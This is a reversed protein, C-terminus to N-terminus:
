ALHIVDYGQEAKREDPSQILDCSFFQVDECSSCCAVLLHGVICASSVHGHSETLKVAPFETVADNGSKILESISFIFCKTVKMIVVYESKQAIAGVHIHIDIFSIDKDACVHKLLKFDILDFVRIDLKGNVFLTLGVLKDSFAVYEQQEIVISGWQQPLDELHFCGESAETWEMQRTCKELIKVALSYEQENLVVFSDPRGEVPLFYQAEIDDFEYECRERSDFVYWGEGPAASRKKIIWNNHQTLVFNRVNQPGLSAEGFMIEDNMKSIKARMFRSTKGSVTALLIGDNSKESRCRALPSNM